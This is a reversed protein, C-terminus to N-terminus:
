IISISKPDPTEAFSFFTTRDPYTVVQVVNCRGSAGECNIHVPAMGDGVNENNVRDGGKEGQHAEAEGDCRM